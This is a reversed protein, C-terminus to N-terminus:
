KQQRLYFKGYSKELRKVISEETLEKGLKQFQVWSINIKMKQKGKFYEKKIKEVNYEKKSIEQKEGNVYKCYEEKTKDTKYNYNVYHGAIFDSTVKGDKLSLVKINTGSEAVGDRIYDGTVYYYADMGSDYYASDIGDVIDDMLTDNKTYKKLKTGDKSIEYIQSFTFLGSGQGGSSAILELRGNQDLDTVAYYQYPSSESLIEPDDGFLKKFKRSMIQIQKEDKASLKESKQSADKDKIEVTFECISLEKERDYVSKAHEDLDDIYWKEYPASFFTGEKVTGDDMEQQTYITGNSLTMDDEIIVDINKDQNTFNQIYVKYEEEGEQTKDKLYKTIEKKANKILTKKAQTAEQYKPKIVDEKKMYFTDSGLYTIKKGIKKAGEICAGSEFGNEGFKFSIKEYRKKGKKEYPFYLYGTYEKESKSKYYIEVTKKVDVYTYDEYLWAIKNAWFRFASLIDEKNPVVAASETKNENSGTSETQTIETEANDTSNESTDAKGCATCFLLVISLIIVFRNKM